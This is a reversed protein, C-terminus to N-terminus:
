FKVAIGGLIRRRVRDEVLNGPTSISGGRSLEMNLQVAWDSALDILFNLNQSLMLQLREFEVEADAHGSKLNSATDLKQELHHFAVFIGTSSSLLQTDLSTVLYRVQNEYPQGNAAFFTGGGGSALSSDLTTVVSPSIKHRFGFRVEPLVDGRVLYLSELRDFFDDSFYVRMTDGVTRHVAGFTLTNDEGDKRSFNIQYCSESGQECLDRQEFLTPLFDPNAAADAYVRHAATTELQWNPGLQLVIGGQPTLALSGDSLTSYMGYEMLVAPQVRVGGRSFLDVSSLAQQEYAKGPRDLAGYGFQRERYRLGTQLTNRDSLETTYAGEIRWSRSTEPIDLPDIAAQRHFNNESTYHASLESHGNEGVEHSWSVQYHEFDVPSEGSEGRAVMRNSLSTINVRSSPGRAVDISLSSTQGTGFASGGPQLIDSSSLQTFSGHLGVQTKGLQGRIGLGASSMQGGDSAVQDVGTLANMETEFNGTLSGSPAAKFSAIQVQSEADEIDRLVDAPIRARISWYDDSEPGNGPQRQALEVDLYQYAQATTRTLMIVAPMFGAKHAIIKYLGAPLDRFLFHGEGDTMVRHLSLDALQYAYIHAAALPNSEGLVRGAVGAGRPEARLVGAPGLLAIAAILPLSKRLAGM